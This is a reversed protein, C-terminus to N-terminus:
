WGGSAGGGGFGGGGGSFGGFGGRGSSFGGGSGGYYGGGGRGSSNGFLMVLSVVLSIIGMLIDAFLFGLLIAIAIAIAYKISSKKIMSKIVSLAIVGFVMLWISMRKGSGQPKHNAQTVAPLDEGNILNIIADLGGNIGVAFQGHRFEPTIINEIIRKAYIDPIAGELGYGVDIRLKRDDKAIIMLVGDDVGGRGIKWKEAVRISYQEIEEPATTPLILIAIQSGKEQEFRAIKDELYELNNSSITQTLDTVRQKLEPVPVYDQAITLNSLFIFSIAVFLTKINKIKM